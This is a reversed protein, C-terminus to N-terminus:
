KRLKAISEKFGINNPELKLGQTWYRRAAALDGRHKADAGRKWLAKLQSLNQLAPAIGPNVPNTDMRATGPAAVRAAAPRPAPQAPRAAQGPMIMQPRAPLGSSDLLPASTPATESAPRRSTGVVFETPPPASQRSFYSAAGGALALTALAGLIPVLPLKKKPAPELHTEVVQTPVPIQPEYFPVAPEQVTASPPVFPAPAVSIQPTVPTPSAFNAQEIEYGKDFDPVDTQIIDTHFAHAHAASSPTAELDPNPFDFASGTNSHAIQPTAGAATISPATVPVPASPSGTFDDLDFDNMADNSAASLPAHAPVPAAEVPPSVVPAAANDAAKKRGFGLAM